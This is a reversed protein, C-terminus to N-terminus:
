VNQKDVPKTSGSVCMLRALSRSIRYFTTLAAVTMFVWAAGYVQPAKHEPLFYGALALACYLISVWIAEQTYRLLLFYFATARFEEAIPGQLSVVIAESTAIFGVFVAGVTVSAGLIDRQAPFPVGYRWFAAAAAAAILYPYLQEWVRHM